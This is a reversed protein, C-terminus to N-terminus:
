VLESLELWRLGKEDLLQIIEGIRISISNIEEFSLNTNLKEDLLKKEAELKEIEKTLKDYEKKDNYNIKKKPEQVAVITETKENEVEEDENTIAKLYARYETYTGPFDSTEGKGEFVLLHDVLKDLFYRDHSVIVVCGPFDLLFEELVQLTLM